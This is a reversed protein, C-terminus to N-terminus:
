LAPLLPSLGGEQRIRTEAEVVQCFGTASTQAQEHILHTRFAALDVTRVATLPPPHGAHVGAHWTRFRRLDHLYARVTAPALDRQVLHHQFAELFADDTDPPPTHIVRM